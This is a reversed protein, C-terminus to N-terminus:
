IYRQLFDNMLLEWQYDNKVDQCVRDIRKRAERPISDELRRVLGMRRALQFQRRKEEPLAQFKEIEAVMKNKETKLSGTVSELLNVIHDSVLTGQCDHIALLM